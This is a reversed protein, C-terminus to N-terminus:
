PRRVWKKPDHWDDWPPITIEDGYVTHGIVMGVPLIQNGSSVGGECSYCADKEHRGHECRNLDNLIRAMKSETFQGPFKEDAM